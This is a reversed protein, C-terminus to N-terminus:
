GPIYAKVVGPPFEGKPPQLSFALRPRGDAGRVAAVQIRFSKTRARGTAVDVPGYTAARIDIDTEEIHLRILYRIGDVLFQKNDPATFYTGEELLVGV